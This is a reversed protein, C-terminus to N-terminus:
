GVAALHEEPASLVDACADALAVIADCYSTVSEGVETLQLDVIVEDACIDECRRVDDAIQRIDGEFLPRRATDCRREVSGINARAILRVASPDRGAVETMHQLAMWRSAMVALPLGGPMWGDGVRAIRRM